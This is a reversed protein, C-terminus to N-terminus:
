YRTRRGSVGFALLGLLALSSFGPEPVPQMFTQFTLDAGANGM